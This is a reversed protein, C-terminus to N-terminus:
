FGVQLLSAFLRQCQYTQKNTQETLIKVRKTKNKNQKGCESKTLNPGNHALLQPHTYHLAWSNHDEMQVFAETPQNSRSQNTPAISWNPAVELYSLVQPQNCEITLKGRCPGAESAQQRCECKLTSGHASASLQSHALRPFVLCPRNSVTQRVLQFKSALLQPSTRQDFTLGPRLQKTPIPVTVPLWQLFEGDVGKIVAISIDPLQEVTPRHRRHRAM